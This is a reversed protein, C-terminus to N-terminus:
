GRLKEKLMWWCVREEGAYTRWVYLYDPQFLTMMPARIPRLLM